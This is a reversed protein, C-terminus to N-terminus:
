KKTVHVIVDEYYPKTVVIGQPTDANGPLFGGDAPVAVWFVVDVKGSTLASARAASDINVIEVNKGVRRSLEALM